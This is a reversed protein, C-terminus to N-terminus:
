AITGMCLYIGSFRVMFVAVFLAFVGTLLLAMPLTLWPSWRYHVSLIGTTYAGLGYFAAHGLSIQGAYGMLMNLGLGLITYIGIFTLLQLYYSNTIVFGAVIVALGFLLHRM